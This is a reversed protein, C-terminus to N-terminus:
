RTRQGDQEWSFGGAARKQALQPVDRSRM